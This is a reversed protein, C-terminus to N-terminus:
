SKLAIDALKLAGERSKAVCLFRGNHCFIADTVGTIQVLEGDRKGAWNEPFDKRNGFTNRDLSVAYVRWMNDVTNPLIIFLPEPYKRIVDGWPYKRELLIVRKDKAEKYAKEVFDAAELSDQAKKIERLLITKAWEVAEAFRADMAEENEKWTPRFSAVIDSVAYESVDTFISKAIDVGNDNADIPTVLKEDIKEAVAKSGSVKEGYEKWLLGFAAYPIGNERKGAGGTQHHDFRKKAPDYVGGVDFVFDGGAIIKEDRTRYFSINGNFMIELLAASFVDDAHFISNHTIAKIKKKFIM